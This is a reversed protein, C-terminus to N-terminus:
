LLFINIFITKFTFITKYCFHLHEISMRKTKFWSGCGKCKYNKESTTLDDNGNMVNHIFDLCGYNHNAIKSSKVLKECGICKEKEVMFCCM